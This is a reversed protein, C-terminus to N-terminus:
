SMNSVEQYDFLLLLLLLILGFSDIIFKFKMPDLHKGYTDLGKDYGGLQWFFTASIAFLGGAMIPNEFPKTPQLEDSPLLPLLRYRFTWDFSGRSAYAHKHHKQLKYEYTQSDIKDITPCVVIHDVDNKMADLHIFLLDLNFRNRIEVIFYKCKRVSYHHCGIIIHRM